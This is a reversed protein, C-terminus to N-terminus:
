RRLLRLAQGILRDVRSEDIHERLKNGPNRALRPRSAFLHSRTVADHKGPLLSTRLPVADRSRLLCFLEGVFRKPFQAEYCAAVLTQSRESATIEWHAHHRAAYADFLRSVDVRCSVPTPLEFREPRAVDWFHM